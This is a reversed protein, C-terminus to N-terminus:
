FGYKKKIKELIKRNEKVDDENAPFTLDLKDYAEDEEFWYDENNDIVNVAEIVDREKLEEVFKYYERKIEILPKVVNEWYEECHATILRKVESKLNGQKWLNIFEKTSAEKPWYEVYSKDFFSSFILMAKLYHSVRERGEIVDVIKERKLMSSTLEKYAVHSLEYFRETALLFPNNKDSPNKIFNKVKNKEFLKNLPISLISKKFSNFEPMVDESDISKEKIKKRSVVLKSLIASLFHSRAGEPELSIKIPKKRGKSKKLIAKTKVLGYGKLLDVYRLIKLARSQGYPEIGKIEKKSKELNAYGKEKKLNFFEIAIDRVLISHNGFNTKLLILYFVKSIDKSRRIIYFNRRLISKAETKMLIDLM